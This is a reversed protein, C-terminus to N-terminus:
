NIGEVSFEQYRGSAYRTALLGTAEKPHIAEGWGRECVTENELYNLSDMYFLQGGQM